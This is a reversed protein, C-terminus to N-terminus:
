IYSLFDNCTSIILSFVDPSATSISAPLAALSHRTFALTDSYETTVTELTAILKKRQEVDDDFCADLKAKITRPFGASQSLTQFILGWQLSNIFISSEARGSNLSAKVTDLIWSIVSQATIIRYHILRELVFEFHQTSNAWVHSVVSITELRASLDGKPHLMQLVPLYREILIVAHSFTKSGAMLLSSIFAPRATLSLSGDPLSLLKKLEDVTSRSQIMQLVKRAQIAEESGEAGTEEDYKYVLEPVPPLLPLCWEPVSESVRDYYSLRLLKELVMQVFLRKPHAVPLGAVDKWEDWKWNLDFNSLHHAFWAALLDRQVANLTDIRSVLTLLARAMVPPFLRTIRCCDMMVIEYFVQRLGNTRHRLLEGFLFEAVIKEPHGISESPVALLTASLKAHNVEFTELVMRLELFTWWQNFKALPDETSEFTDALINMHQFAGDWMPDVVLSSFDLPTLQHATPIKDGDLPSTWGYSLAANLSILDQLDFLGEVPDKCILDYFALPNRTLPVTALLLWRIFRNEQSLPALMLCLQKVSENDIIGNKELNFIVRVGQVLHKWNGVAISRNMTDAFDVLIKGVLVPDDRNLLIILKSYHPLKHPLELLCATISSVIESAFDAREEMIMKATANLDEEPTM